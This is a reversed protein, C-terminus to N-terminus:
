EACATKGCGEKCRKGILYDLSLRGAGGALLSFLMFFYYFPVEYGNKGCTFGNNWHVTAIAVIMVFMLPISIFRTAMGLILLVVGILETSTALYANLYPLPIHLSSGFWEAVGDINKLKESGTEYFGHALILRFALPPLDKLKDFYGVAGCLINKIM